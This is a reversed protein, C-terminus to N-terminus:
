NKPFQILLTYQRTIKYVKKQSSTDNIRGQDLPRLGNSSYNQKCQRGLMKIEKKSILTKKKQSFNLYGLLKERSLPHM